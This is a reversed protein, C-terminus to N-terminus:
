SLALNDIETRSLVGIYVRVDDVAGPWYNGYGGGYRTRGIQMPGNAQWAATFAATGTLEGDVYLRIQRAAADYVGVLHTWRGVVTEQRSYVRTATEGGADKSSVSLAWKRATPSYQLYFGSNYSGDQSAV